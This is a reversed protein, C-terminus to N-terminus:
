TAPFNSVIFVALLFHLGLTRCKEKAPVPLFFYCVFPEAVDGGAMAAAIMYTETMM